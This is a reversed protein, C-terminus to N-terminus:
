LELVVPSLSTGVNVSGLDDGEESWSISGSTHSPGDSHIEVKRRRGKGAPDEVRENVKVTPRKLSTSLRFTGEFTEHLKITAPALSTQADLVLSSAVPATIFGLDLASLSTTGIVKFKGGTGGGSVLSMGATM